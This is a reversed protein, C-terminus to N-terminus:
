AAAAARYEGFVEHAASTARAIWAPDGAAATELAEGFARWEGPLHTASLYARPLAAGVNRALFGGGLRSGEIVYAMGFAAAADRPEAVCAMEPMPRGLAALDATLLPTRPRLTPLGPVGALAAEIAPLVRAHAILFAGYSGADALDYGGFAADVAEHASATANRLETRASMPGGYGKAIWAAGTGARGAGRRVPM